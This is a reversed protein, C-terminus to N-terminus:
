APSGLARVQRNCLARIYPLLDLLSDKFVFHHAGAAMPRQRLTTGDYHTVIVLHCQACLSRIERLAAMSDMEELQLDM